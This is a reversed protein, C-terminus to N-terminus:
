QQANEIALEIKPLSVWNSLNQQLIGLLMAHTPNSRLWNQIFQQENQTCLGTLYKTLINAQIHEQM